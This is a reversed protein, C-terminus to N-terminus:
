ADILGDYIYINLGDYIHDYRSSTLLKMVDVMSAPKKREHASDGSTGVTNPTSRDLSTSMTSIIIPTNRAGSTPNNPVIDTITCMALTSGVAIVSYAEFLSQTGYRSLMPSSAVKLVVEFGLFLTAFVSGLNNTATELPVGKRSAYRHSCSAFYVAQGNWLIGAGWGGLGAGVLVAPWAYEQQTVAVAFSIVYVSMASMGGILCYKPGFKKVAWSSLLLSSLCMNGYLTALNYAGIKSGLEASAVATLTTVTGMCMSFYLSMLAFRYWLTNSDDKHAASGVDDYDDKLLCELDDSSKKKAMVKVLKM